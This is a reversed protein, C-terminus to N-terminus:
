FRYGLAPGLVGLPSVDGDWAKVIVDVMSEVVSDIDDSISLM